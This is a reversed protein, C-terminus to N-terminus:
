GAGKRALKKRGAEGFRAKARSKLLRFQTDTLGMEQCIREQTQHDLYFRKLIERDRDPIAQLVAVLIQQQQRSIAATEPDMDYGALPSTSDIEVQRQRVQVTTEIHGAIQRRVVTRVFGMLREPERLDGRQIAQIVILFCDHVRDDLDQPGLQRCVFYRIGRSFVRYLEEVASQDRERIREVVNAWDEPTSDPPNQTSQQRRSGAEETDM